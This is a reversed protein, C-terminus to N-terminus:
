SGKSLHPPIVESGGHSPIVTDTPKASLSRYYPTADRSFYLYWVAVALAPIWTLDMQFGDGTRMGVLARAFSWAGVGIWFVIMLDRSWAKGTIIAYAITLLLLVFVAMVIGFQSLFESGSVELEDIKFFGMDAAASLMAFLLLAAAAISGYIGITLLVPRKLNM